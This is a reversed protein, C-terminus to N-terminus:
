CSLNVPGSGPQTPSGGCPARLWTWTRGRDWVAPVPGTGRSSARTPTPRTSRRWSPTEGGTKRDSARGVGQGSLNEPAPLDTSSWNPAIASCNLAIRRGTATLSCRPPWNTPPMPFPSRPPPAQVNRATDTPGDSADLSEAEDHDADSVLRRLVDQPLRRHDLAPGGTASVGTQALLRRYEAFERAGHEDHPVPPNGHETPVRHCGDPRVGSLYGVLRSRDLDFVACVDEWTVWTQEPLIKLAHEFRDFRERNLKWYRYGERASQWWQGTNPLTELAQRSPFTIQWTGSGDKRLWGAKVLDTTYWGAQEKATTRGTTHQRWEGNIGPREREVCRWLTNWTLGDPTRALPEATVRLASAILKWRPPM